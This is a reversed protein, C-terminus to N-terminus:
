APISQFNAAHNTLDWGQYGTLTSINYHCEALLTGGTRLCHIDPGQLVELGVRNADEHPDEREQSKPVRSAFKLNGRLSQTDVTRFLM